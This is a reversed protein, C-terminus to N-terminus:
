KKHPQGTKGVDNISSVKRERTYTKPLKKYILQGHIQPNIEPSESRNWQDTHRNKQWYWATKIVTAKHYVKFDSLMTSGSKNKKRLIAKTVWPRRHNCVFKLIKQETNTSFTMPIKIPIAKFRYIANPLVSMKVINIRGIWLCSTDKWKKTDEIEKLLPNYSETYLDKM